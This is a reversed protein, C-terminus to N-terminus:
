AYNHVPHILDTLTGTSKWKSIICLCVGPPGKVDIHYIQPNKMIHIIYAILYIDEGNLETM